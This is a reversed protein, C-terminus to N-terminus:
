GALRGRVLSTVTSGGHQEEGEAHRHHGAEIKPRAGSICVRRPAQDGRELFAAGFAGGARRAM